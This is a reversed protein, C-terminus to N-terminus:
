GDYDGGANWLKLCKKYLHNKDLYGVITKPVIAYAECIIEAIMRCIEKKDKDDLVM